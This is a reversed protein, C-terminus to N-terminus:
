YPKNDMPAAKENAFCKPCLAQDLHRKEYWFPIKFEFEDGKFRLKDKLSHNEDELDDTERKLNILKDYVEMLQQKTEMKSTVQAVDFITKCATAITNFLSLGAQAEM